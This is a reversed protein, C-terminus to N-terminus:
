VVSKRDKFIYAAAVGASISFFPISLKLFGAAITGLRADRDSAAALVRQVQYQNTTWYFFHLIMLGTFAGTWPLDKHNSPLYLHMKQEAIPKAHDIALLNWFGGIEPQAFTLLGVIVATFVMLITQINDAIVVSEMGGFVAFTGAVFAIAIIGQLYTIEFGSGNFLLGMTRSAIYFGAVIQILIFSINLLSYATQAADDYRNALFQSLTFVERKRYLPVFIYALALIPLIALVEYHSQAFGISYGVGLMGIIQVASVNTGYISGAVSWWRLSRGAMFYDESQGSKNKFFGAFLSSFTLGALLIVLVVVDFTSLNQLM